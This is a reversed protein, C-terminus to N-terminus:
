FNGAFPPRQLAREFEARNHIPDGHSVIVHEFPLDLFARLAPLVAQEHWPSGV